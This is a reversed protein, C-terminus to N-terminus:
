PWDNSRLWAGGQIWGELSLVPMQNLIQQQVIQQVQQQVQALMQQLVQQTAAPLQQPQVGAPLQLNLNLNLNLQPPAQRRRRVKIDAEFHHALSTSEICGMITHEAHEDQGAPIFTRADIPQLLKCLNEYAEYLKWILNETPQLPRVVKLGIEEAEGRGIAHGHQYTKEALTEIINNTRWDIIPRINRNWREKWMRSPSTKRATLLKRAVLRIHSHARAVQGLMRPDLKGVLAAVAGALAAKDTLGAKERIFRIYGMVDEVAVQEQVATGGNGGRQISFTPDIPGLEGKPGMVIEDAGIAIMTAASMAKYPILVAFERAVERIMTVIRWPVDTFGGVSYLFLDVKTVPQSARLHDYIPRVADEAVQSIAGTRDGLFYTIVKSGRQVELQSILDHRTQAEPSAM